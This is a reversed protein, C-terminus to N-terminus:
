APWYRENRKNRSGGDRSDILMFEGLSQSPFSCETLCFRRWHRGNNRFVTQNLPMWRYVPRVSQSLLRIDFDNRLIRLIKM